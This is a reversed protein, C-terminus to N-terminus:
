CPRKEDIMNFCTFLLVFLFLFASFTLSSFSYLLFFIELGKDSGCNASLGRASVPLPPPGLNMFFRNVKADLGMHHRDDLGLQHASQDGGRETARGKKM